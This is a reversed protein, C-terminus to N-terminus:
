FLPPDFGFGWGAAMSRRFGGLAPLTTLFNNAARFFHSISASCCLRAAGVENRRYRGALLSALLSVAASPELRECRKARHFARLDCFIKPTVLPTM